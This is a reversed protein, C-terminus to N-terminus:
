ADVAYPCLLVHQELREAINHYLHARVGAKRGAGHELGGILPDQWERGIRDDRGSSEM